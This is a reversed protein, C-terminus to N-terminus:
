GIPISPSRSIALTPIAPSCKCRVLPIALLQKGCPGSFPSNILLQQRAPCYNQLTRYESGADPKPDYTDIHSCGGPKWVMIVATKEAPNGDFAAAQAQMKLIGPLTLTSFGALGMQLFSRRDARLPNPGCCRNHSNTSTM